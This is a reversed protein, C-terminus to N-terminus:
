ILRRSNEINECGILYHPYKEKIYSLLKKAYNEQHLKGPHQNDSAKDIFANNIGTQYINKGNVYGRFYLNDDMYDDGIFSNDWIWNCKKSELFYKILLHNKYWNILNENNNQTLLLNKQIEKGEDTQNFFHGIPHTAIFPNIGCKNDYYERRNTAPYLIIVLDPKIIDFYTLLCRSIFDSSRGGIGFNMDVSNPILKSLKNPWTENNEVGVGETVSCGLTMIKFGKNFISEGRFGLENYKYHTTLKTKEDLISYIQNKRTELRNVYSSIDFDNLSWFKLPGNHSIYKQPIRQWGVSEICNISVINWDDIYGYIKKIGMKKCINQVTYYLEKGIGRNRYNKNVYINKPEYTNDLWIWGKINSQPKYIVFKWNNLLRKKVEEIDWMESWNIESKFENIEKSLDDFDLNDLSIEYIYPSQNILIYDDLNMEFKM